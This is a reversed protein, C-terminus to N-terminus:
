YKNYEHIVTNNYYVKLFIDIDNKAHFDLHMGFFARIEYSVRM